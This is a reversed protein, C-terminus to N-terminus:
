ALALQIAAAALALASGIMLTTWVRALRLFPSLQDAEEGGKARIRALREPLLLFFLLIVVLFGFPGGSTGGVRDVAEDLADGAAKSAQQRMSRYEALSARAQAGTGLTLLATGAVAFWNAALGWGSM